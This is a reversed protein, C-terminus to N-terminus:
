GQCFWFYYDLYFDILIQYYKKRLCFAELVGFGDKVEPYSHRFRGKWRRDCYFQWM